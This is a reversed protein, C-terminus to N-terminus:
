FTRDSGTGSKQIGLIRKREPARTARRVEESRPSPTSGGRGRAGGSAAGLVARNGRDRAESEAQLYIQRFVEPGLTRQLREAALPNTQVAEYMDARGQPTDVQLLEPTAQIGLRNYADLTALRLERDSDWTASSPDASNQFIEFQRELNADIIDDLRKNISEDIGARYRFRFEDRKAALETRLRDMANRDQLEQLRYRSALEQGAIDRRAQIAERDVDVGQQRIDVEQQRLRNDAQRQQEELRRQEEATQQETVRGVAGGASQVAAGLNQGFSQGPNAPNLLATGFQLLAAQGQPSSFFSKLSSKNEESPVTMGPATPQALQGLPQAQAEAQPQNPQLTSFAQQIFPNQGQNPGAM